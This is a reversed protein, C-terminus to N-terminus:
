MKKLKKKGLTAFIKSLYIYKKKEFFLNKTKM